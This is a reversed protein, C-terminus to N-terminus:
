KLGCEKKFAADFKMWEPAHYKEVGDKWWMEHGFRGREFSFTGFGKKIKGKIADGPRQRRRIAKWAAYQRKEEKHQRKMTDRARGLQRSGAHFVKVAMSAKEKIGTRAKKALPSFISSAKRKSGQRSLGSRAWSTQGEAHTDTAGDYQRKFDNLGSFSSARREPEPNVCTGESEETDLRVHRSSASDEPYIEPSSLLEFRRHSELPEREGRWQMTAAAAEAAVEQTRSLDTASKASSSDPYGARFQALDTRSLTNARQESLPSQVRSSRIGATPYSSSTSRGRSVTPNPSESKSSSLRLGRDVMRMLNAHEALLESPEPSPSEM